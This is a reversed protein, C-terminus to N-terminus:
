QAVGVGPEAYLRLFEQNVCFGFPLRILINARMLAQVAVAAGGDWAMNAELSEVTSSLRVEPTRLYLALSVAMGLFREPDIGFQPAVLDALRVLEPSWQVGYSM